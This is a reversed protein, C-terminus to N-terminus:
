PSKKLSRKILAAAAREGADHGFDDDGGYPTEAEAMKRRFHDPYLTRSAELECWDGFGEEGSRAPATGSSLEVALKDLALMQESPNAALRDQYLHGLEHFVTAWYSEQFRYITGHKEHYARWTTWPACAFYREAIISRVDAPVFSRGAACGRMEHEAPRGGHPVRYVQYSGLRKFKPLSYDASASFVYLDSTDYLVADVDGLGDPYLRGYLPRANELGRSFTELDADTARYDVRAPADWSDTAAKPRPFAWRAKLAALEHPLLGVRPDKGFLFHDEMISSTADDPRFVYGPASPGGPCPAAKTCTDPHMLGLLHGVEHVIGGWHREAPRSCWWPLPARHSGCERARVSPSNIGALALGGEKGHGEDFAAFVVTRGEEYIGLERLRRKVSEYARQDKGRGRVEYVKEEVDVHLGFHRYFDRVVRVGLQIAARDDDAFPVGEEVYYVPRLLPTRGFLAIEDGPLRLAVPADPQELPFTEAAFARAPAILASFVVSLSVIRM